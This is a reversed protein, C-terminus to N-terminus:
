LVDECATDTEDAHASTLPADAASRDDPKANGKQSKFVCLRAREMAGTENLKAQTLAKARQAREEATGVLQGADVSECAARARGRHPKTSAVAESPKGGARQLHRRIAAEERPIPHASCASRAVDSSQSRDVSNSRSRARRETRLSPCMPSTLNLHPGKLVKGLSRDPNLIAMTCSKGNQRRRERQLQCALEAQMVQM